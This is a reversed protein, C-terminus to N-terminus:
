FQLHIYDLYCTGLTGKEGPLFYFRIKKVSTLDVESTDPLSFRHIQWRHEERSDVKKLVECNGESDVLEIKLDARGKIELVLHKFHSFDSLQPIVEFYTEMDAPLRYMVQLSHGLEKKVGDTVRYKYYKGNDPDSWKGYPPSHESPDFNDIIGVFGTLKLAKWVEENKMFTKWILGSRYNEINLIVPGLDIGIYNSSYWNKKLNFSCTFGYKGWMKDRLNDWMYRLVTISEKPTFIISPTAATFAITGDNIHGQQWSSAPALPAGYDGYISGGGPGPGDTPNLGWCDPGYTGEDICFQRNALTAEISNQFYDAYDDRMCRFDVFCNDWQHIWLAARSIRYFHGKYTDWQYTSAWNHWYKPDIPRYTAGIPLLYDLKMGDYELVWGWDHNDPSYLNSIFQKNRSRDAMWKWDVNNFIKTALEEIETGEFYKRVTLVGCILAVHDHTCIGEAGTWKGTDPDVWHYFHGNVNDVCFDNPDNPDKYFSNLTRLVRDYAEEHSIWGRYDAVCIAALGYGIAASSAARNTMSDYILGTKPNVENWFYKFANRSVEELLQEDTIESGSINISIMFTFVLFCALVKTRM